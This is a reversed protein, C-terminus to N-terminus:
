FVAGSSLMTMDALVWRADPFRRTAIWLMPAAFDVGTVDYGLAILWTAIPDGGGCGLDLVAGDPPVQSRAGWGRM